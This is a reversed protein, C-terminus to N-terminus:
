NDNAVQYIDNSKAKQERCKKTRTVQEKGNERRM